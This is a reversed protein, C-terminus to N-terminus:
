RRRRHLNHPSSFFGGFSIGSYGLDKSSFNCRLPQERTAM